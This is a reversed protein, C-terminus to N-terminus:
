PKPLPPPLQLLRAGIEEMQRQRLRAWGPVQLAGFAFMASGMTLFTAVEAIAEGLASGEGLVQVVILVISVALFTLGISMLSRARGKM